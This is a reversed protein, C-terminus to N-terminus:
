TAAATIAAATPISDKISSLQAIPLDYEVRNIRGRAQEPVTRSSLAPVRDDVTVAFSDVVILRDDLMSTTYGLSALLTSLAGNGVKSEISSVLEGITRGETSETLTYVLLRLPVDRDEDLQKFGHITVSNSATGAGKVEICGNPLEFDHASGSPGKWALVAASGLRSACAELVVLEAFLGFRRERGFRVGAVARFMARWRELADDITSGIDSSGSAADLVDLILEDFVDFLQPDGCRVDLYNATQGAFNLSRICDRLPSAIETWERPSRSTPVLLHRLGESDLAIRVGLEVYPELPLSAMPEVTATALAHWSGALVSRAEELQTM